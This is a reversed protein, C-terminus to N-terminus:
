IYVLIKPGGMPRGRNEKADFHGIQVILIGQKSTQNKQTNQKLCKSCSM